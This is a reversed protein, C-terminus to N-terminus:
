IQNLYIIVASDEKEKKSKWHPFTDDPQRFKTRPFSCHGCWISDFRHNVGLVYYQRYNACTGCVPPEPDKLMYATM